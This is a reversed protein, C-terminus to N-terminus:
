LICSKHRTVHCGINVACPLGAIHTPFVEINVGLATTKGGFGQPGIGLTNIRELLELELNAYNKDSNRIDIDRSLAKKALYACYEFTGGLGVGVVIPPCPNGDAKKVTEIVFNAVDEKKASPTFMHIASMNESGFGKPAATLKIKEGEVIRIHIIAPSNNGTNKRDFLPDVVVSKRLYGEDYARIVGQNVSDEFSKGEIYVESGIEAFLVAMGTDQCIPLSLRNACDINESLKLLTSKALPYDESKECERIKQCLSQPLTRNASIFLEKVANEIQEDKIIRM